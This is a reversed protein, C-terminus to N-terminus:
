RARHPARARPRAPRHASVCPADYADLDVVRPDPHRGVEDIPQEQRERWAIGRVRAPVAARTEAERDALAQHVGHLAGDLRPALLTRTGGEGHRQRDLDCVRRHDLALPLAVDGSRTSATSCSGASRASIPRRSSPQRKSAALRPRSRRPARVRGPLRRGRAPVEAHDQEVTEHGARGGERAAEAVQRGRWPDHPDRGLVAAHRALDGTNAFLDLTGDLARRQKVGDHLGDDSRGSTLDFPRRWRRPRPSQAHEDGLIVVDVLHDHAVQQLRHSEVDVDHRVAFCGHGGDEGRRVVDDEHVALHGHEVAEFRRAADPERLLSRRMACAGHIM